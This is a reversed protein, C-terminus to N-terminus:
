GGSGDRGYTVRPAAPAAPVFSDPLLSVRGTGERTVARIAPVPQVPAFSLRRVTLTTISEM